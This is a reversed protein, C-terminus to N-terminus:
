VIVFWTLLVLLGLIMAIAYHFLYGSQIARAVGAFWGVTRASGNIIIDDILRRDGWNWLLRGIGRSGGAFLFQYAEDLWYKKELLAHVPWLTQKIKEAWDPRQMYVYWAVGVGGLALYLPLGLFGHMFM